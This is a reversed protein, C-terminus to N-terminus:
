GVLLCNWRVLVVLQIIVWTFISFAFSLLSSFSISFSFFPNKPFICSTPWMDLINSLMCFFILYSKKGRVPWSPLSPGPPVSDVADERGLVASVSGPLHSAAWHHDSGSGPKVHLWVVAPAVAAGGPDSNFESPVPGPFIYTLNHSLSFLSFVRHVPDWIGSSYQPVVSNGGSIWSSRLYSVIV